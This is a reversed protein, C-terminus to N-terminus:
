NAGGRIKARKPGMAKRQNNPANLKRLVKTNEGKRFKKKEGL